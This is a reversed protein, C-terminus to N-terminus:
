GIRSNSRPATLDQYSARTDVDIGEAVPAAEVAAVVRAILPRGQFPLLLKNADGMRRSLGAALIIATVHPLDSAPDAHSASM